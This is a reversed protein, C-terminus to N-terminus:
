LEDIFGTLDPPRDLLHERGPPPDYPEPWVDTIRTIRGDALEFFTIGLTGKGDVRFNMTGAARDGDALLRTVEIEWDGPYERNFQVYAAAGRVQERRQPMQYLVDPALVEALADWDRKGIAEYYRTVVDRTDVVLLSAAAAWM